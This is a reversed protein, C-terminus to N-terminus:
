VEYPQWPSFLSPFKNKVRCPMVITLLNAFSQGIDKGCPPFTQRALGHGFCGPWFYPLGKQLTYGFVVEGLWLNFQQHEACITSKPQELVRRLKDPVVVGVFALKLAPCVLFIRKGDVKIHPQLREFTLRGVSEGCSKRLPQVRLPANTCDSAEVFTM